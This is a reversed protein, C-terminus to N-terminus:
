VYIGIVVEVRRSTRTRNLSSANVIVIRIRKNKLISVLKQIGVFVLFFHKVQLKCVRVFQSRLNNLEYVLM